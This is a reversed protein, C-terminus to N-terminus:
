CPPCPSRGATSTPCPSIPPRRGEHVSSVAIGSGVLAAIEGGFTALVEAPAQAALSKNFAAIQDALTTPTTQETIM